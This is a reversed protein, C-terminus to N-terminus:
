ADATAPEIEQYIIPRDTSRAPLLFAALARRVIESFSVTVGYEGSLERARQEAATILEDDLNVTKVTM